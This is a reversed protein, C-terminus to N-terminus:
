PDLTQIWGDKTGPLLSLCLSLSLIASFPVVVRAKMKLTVMCKNLYSKFSSKSEFILGSILESRMNSFKIKSKVFNSNSDM